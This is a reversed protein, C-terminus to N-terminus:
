CLIRGLRVYLALIASDQDNALMPQCAVKSRVHSDVHVKTTGAHESMPLSKIKENSLSNLQFVASALMTEQHNDSM